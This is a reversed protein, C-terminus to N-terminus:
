LEDAFRTAQLSGADYPKRRSLLEIDFIDIDCWLSHNLKSIMISELLVSQRDVDWSATISSSAIKIAAVYNSIAVGESIWVNVGNTVGVKIDRVRVGTSGVVGFCVGIDVEFEVGVSVCAASVGM